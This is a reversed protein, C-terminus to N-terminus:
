KNSIAFVQESVLSSKKQAHSHTRQSRYENPKFTVCSCLFVISPLCSPRRSTRFCVDREYNADLWSRYSNECRSFGTRRLQMRTGTRFRPINCPLNSSSLSSTKVFCVGLGGSQKQLWFCDRAYCFVERLATSRCFAVPTGRICTSRSKGAAAGRKCQQEPM